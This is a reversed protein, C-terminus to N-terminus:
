VPHAILCLKSVKQKKELMRALEEYSEHEKKSPIEEGHQFLVLEAWGGVVRKMPDELSVTQKGDYIDFLVSEATAIDAVRPIVQTREKEGLRWSSALEVRMKEELQSAGESDRKLEARGIEKRIEDQRRLSARWALDHYEPLLILLHTTHQKWMTDVRFPMNGLDESASELPDEEKKVNHLPYWQPHSPSCNRAM